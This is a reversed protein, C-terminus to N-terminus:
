NNKKIFNKNKKFYVEVQSPIEKLLEQSLRNVDVKYDNYKVFQVIDRSVKAGKSNTLEVEDGDLVVMNEFQSEGIGIIIFSIPLLSAEYIADRTESMDHIDGDTLIIFIYYSNIKGEMSQKVSNTMSKICPSFYTPGDLKVRSLALKYADIIGEVGYVEPDQTLNCPFCHNVTGGINAGFGFVPFRQDFDYYAIISCCSRLAQEYHNPELGKLYHLSTPLSPDKNSATFDIACSVSIQLGNQIYEVFKMDKQTQYKITGDQGPNFKAFGNSINLLNLSCITKGVLSKVGADYIEFQIPKDLDGHNIDNLRIPSTSFNPSVQEHSKYVNQWTNDLNQASIVIFYRNQVKLSFTYEILTDETDEKVAAISIVLAVGPQKTLPFECSKAVSGFVRGISTEVAESPTDNYNINFKLTQHEEFLYDVKYVTEFTMKGNSLPLTTGLSQFTYKNSLMSISVEIKFSSPNYTTQTNTFKLGLSIQVRAKGGVINGKYAEQERHLIFYKEGPPYGNNNSINNFNGVGNNAGVNGVVNTNPTAVLTNNYLPVPVNNYGTAYTNRKKPTSECAGM